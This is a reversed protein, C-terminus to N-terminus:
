YGLEVDESTIIDMEQFTLTMHTETPSAGPGPHEGLTSSKKFTGYRDGGYTIDCDTLLCTGIKNIFNNENGKYYYEINFENPVDLSLFDQMAGETRKPLMNQRFTQIIERVQQAEKEQKPYFSFQYTFVRKKVADFIFEMRNSVLKGRMLVLLEPAGSVGLMEGAGALMKGGQLFSWDIDWAKKNDDSLNDKISGIITALNGMEQDKYVVGTINKVQPPMYLTIITKTRKTAPRARFRAIGRKDKYEGQPASTTETDANEAGEISQNTTDKVISPTVSTGKGAQLMIDRSGYGAVKKPMFIALNKRKQADTFEGTGQLKDLHAKIEADTYPTDRVGMKSFEEIQKLTFPDGKLYPNQIKEGKKEKGKSDDVIAPKSIERVTFMIYHGQQVDDVVDLPYTLKTVSFTKQFVGGGTKDNIIGRLKKAGASIVRKGVGISQGAVIDKISPM